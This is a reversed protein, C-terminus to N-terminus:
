GTLGKLLLDMEVALDSFQTNWIMTGSKRGVVITKMSGTLVEKPVSKICAFASRM